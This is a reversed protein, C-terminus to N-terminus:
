FHRGCILEMLRDCMSDARDLYNRTVSPTETFLSSAALRNYSHISSLAERIIVSQEAARSYFRTHFGSVTHTTLVLLHSWNIGFRHTRYLSVTYEIGNANLTCEYCSGTNLALIFRRRNFSSFQNILAYISFLGCQPQDACPVPSFLGEMQLTNSDILAVLCPGNDNVSFLGIMELSLNHFINVLHNYICVRDIALTKHIKNFFLLSESL